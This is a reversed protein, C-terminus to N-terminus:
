YLEWTKYNLDNKQWLNCLNECIIVVGSAHRSFKHFKLILYILDTCFIQAFKHFRHCIKTIQKLTPTEAVGM